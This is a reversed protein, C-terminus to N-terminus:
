NSGSGACLQKIKALLETIARAKAGGIAKEIYKKNSIENYLQEYAGNNCLSQKISQLENMLRTNESRLQEYDKKLNEFEAQLTEYDKQLQMYNRRLDEVGKTNVVIMNVVSSLANTNNVIRDSVDKLESMLSEIQELVRVVNKSRKYKYYANLVENLMESMDRGEERALEYLRRLSLPDRRLESYYEESTM